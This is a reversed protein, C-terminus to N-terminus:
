LRKASLIVVPESPVNQYMGKNTTPVKAIQDVVGMGRVVKGFVAYGFDRQGHDLFDNGTLNIFFQSTASDVESTRAMALTGRENVLGNDAENKIPAATDKEQMNETFGGGQVMFGPIVRHFITGNYFGKDVYALFNNVSIPAKAADLEVEIEGLTTSLLVHPKTADAALASTALVLSCAALLLRKFLTM